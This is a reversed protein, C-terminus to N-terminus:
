WLHYYGDRQTIEVPLSFLRSLEAPNLLDTKRGDAQIKGGRMLVVRDIEPIVDSLHHTVLVIGIGSQALERMTQRLGHQAFVDLSNSPEDFLLTQPDHVLARAILIRKAEGSSMEAVARDALHPVGIRELVADAREIQSPEVNQHDFIRTSSFFGSLVVERGSTEGTVDQMLDNSVIGLVSRLEFINWRSQGLITVSSGDRIVPYCERTITKILSSKGCGNPGLIAVHEGANIRLSFDDLAVNDGRVIRVNKLDVLAPEM